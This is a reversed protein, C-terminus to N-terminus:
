RKECTVTVQTRNLLERLVPEHEDECQILVQGRSLYKVELNQETGCGGLFLAVAFLLKAKM